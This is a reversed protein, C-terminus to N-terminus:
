KIDYRELKNHKIIQSLEEGYKDGIESYKDLKKVLEYPNKTEVRLKRFEKFATGKGVLLYYAKVSDEISNFKRLWITKNGDRQINAPIRPENKNASWMGFINNAEVFFRSTAWASEMSAQALVISIPHPKLAELLEKDSNARYKKKLIAIREKNTGNLLDKKVSNYHYLLKYYVKYVAPVLLYFFRNKKTKVSMIKPVINAVYKQKKKNNEAYISVNLLVILIFIKM